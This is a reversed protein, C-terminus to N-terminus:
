ASSPMRSQRKDRPSPSTYLLCPTVSMQCPLPGTLEMANLGRSLSVRTDPDHSLLMLTQCKGEPLHWAVKSPCLYMKLAIVQIPGSPPGEGTAWPRDTDTVAYSVRQSPLSRTVQRSQHESLLCRADPLQSLVTRMQSMSCPMQTRSSVACLNASVLTKAATVLM